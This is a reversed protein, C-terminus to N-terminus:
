SNILIGQGAKNILKKALNLSKRIRDSLVRNTIYLDDKWGMLKATEVLYSRGSYNDSVQLRADYIKLYEAWNFFRNQKTRNKKHKLNNNKVELRNREYLEKIKRKFVNVISVYPFSLDITLIAKDKYVRKQSQEDLSVIENLEEFSNNTIINNDFLNSSKTEKNMSESTLGFRPRGVGVFTIGSLTRRSTEIVNLDLNPKLLNFKSCKLKFLERASSLIAREKKDVKHIERTLINIKAEIEEEDEKNDFFIEIEDYVHEYGKSGKAEMERMLNNLDNGLRIREELLQDIKNDQYFENYQTSRILFLWQFINILVNPAYSDFERERKENEM